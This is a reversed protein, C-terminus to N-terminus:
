QDEPSSDTATMVLAALAAVLLVLTVAFVAVSSHAYLDYSNVAFAFLLVFGVLLVTKRM